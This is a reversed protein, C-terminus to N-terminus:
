TNDQISLPASSTYGLAIAWVTSEGATIIKISTTDPGPYLVEGAESNAAPQGVAIQVRLNSTSKNTLVLPVGAAVGSLDNVDSYETNSVRIDPITNAM